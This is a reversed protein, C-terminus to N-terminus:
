VGVIDMRGMDGTHLWGNRFTEANAESRNWYGKMAIPGRMVIEGAEGRPVEKDSEDVISM